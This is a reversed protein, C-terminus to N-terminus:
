ETCNFYTVGNVILGGETCTEPPYPCAEFERTVSNIIMLQVGDGVTFCTKQESCGNDEIYREFYDSGEGCPVAKIRSPDLSPDPKCVHISEDVPSGCDQNTFVVEDGTPDCYPLEVREDPPCDESVVLTWGVEQTCAPQLLASVALVVSGMIKVATNNNNPVLGEELERNNGLKLLGGKMYFFNFVERKSWARVIDYFCWADVTIM